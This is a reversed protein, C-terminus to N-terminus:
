DCSSLIELDDCCEFRADLEVRMLKWAFLIFEREGDEEDLEEDLEEKECVEDDCLEDLLLRGGDLGGDCCRVM